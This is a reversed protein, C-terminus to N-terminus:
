LRALAEDVQEPETLPAAVFSAGAAEAQARLHPVDWGLQYRPDEVYDM